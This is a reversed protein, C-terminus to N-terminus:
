SFWGMGRDYVDSFWKENRVTNDIRIDSLQMDMVNESNQDTAPSTSYRSHNGYDVTGPDTWGGAFVGDFYVNFTTGDYTFGIHHWNTDKVEILPKDIGNFNIETLAGSTILKYAFKFTVGNVISFSYAVYPSSWTADNQNYWKAFFLRNSTDDAILKKFWLSVSINTGYECVTTYPTKYSLYGSGSSGLVAKYGFLTKPTVSLYGSNYGTIYMNESQLGLSLSRQTRGADTSTMIGSGTTNLLWRLQTYQDNQLLRGGIMETSFWKSLFTGSTYVDGGFLTIKASTDSNNSGQTGSVYFHINRAKLDASINEQGSISVSGTTKLKAGSDTWGNAYLNQTLSPIEFLLQTRAMNSTESINYTGGGDINKTYTIFTHIGPYSPVYFANMTASKNISNENEDAYFQYGRSASSINTGDVKINFYGRSQTGGDRNANLNAILVVPNKVNIVDQFIQYDSSGINLSNKAYQVKYNQPIELVLLSPTSFENVYVGSSGYKASVSYEQTLVNISNDYTMMMNSVMSGSGASCAANIQYGYSLTDSNPVLESAGKYFTFAGWSAGVPHSTACNTLLLKASNSPAISCSLETIKQYSGQLTYVSNTTVSSTAYLTGSPFEVITITTPAVNLGISGTGNLSKACITYTYSGSQPHEFYYFSANDGASNIATTPFKGVATLGKNGVSVINGNKQLSLTAAAGTTSSSFYANVLVLVPGGFTSISASYPSAIFQTADSIQWNNYSTFYAYNPAAPISQPFNANITVNGSPGADDITINTGATLVRENNLSGTASLVVYTADPDGGGGGGGGGGTNEILIQGSSQSTIAIGGGAVLYSIGNSLKQLSGSLGSQAIVPGSFTSGSLTAIVSDNISITYNGGSGADISKLGTGM